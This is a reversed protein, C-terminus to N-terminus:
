PLAAAESGPVVIGVGAGTRGSALPGDDPGVVVVGRAVLTAVNQQTAPHAWMHTEMAPAVIVPGTYSLLVALIAEDAFGAAMKAILDASAPAVVICTSAYAEEVHPIKGGELELVAGLVPQGSLAEFTLPTVFSTAAKTPAVRVRAGAKVLGRVVECARYASISGGVGLLVRQGQLSDM